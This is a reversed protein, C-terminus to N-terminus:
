SPDITGGRNAVTASVPVDKQKYRIKGHWPGAVVAQAATVADALATAISAHAAPADVDTEIVLRYYPM